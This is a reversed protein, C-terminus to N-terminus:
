ADEPEQQRAIWELARRHADRWAENPHTGSDLGERYAHGIKVRISKPLAYWHSPCGWMSVRVRKRCGPWCCDHYTSM